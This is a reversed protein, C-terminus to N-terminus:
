ISVGDIFYIIFSLFLLIIGVYLRREEKSLINIIIYIYNSNDVYGNRYANTIDNLIDIITQLTNKYLERLSLDYFNQQKKIKDKDINNPLTELLNNIKKEINKEIITDLDNYINESKDLNKNNVDYIISVENNIKENIIDNKDEIKINKNLNTM